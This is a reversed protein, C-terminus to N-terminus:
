DSAQNLTMPRNLEMVIETGPELTASKHKSLWYVIAVTGGV